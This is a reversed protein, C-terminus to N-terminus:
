LNSSDSVGPLVFQQEAEALNVSNTTKEEFSHVNGAGALGM